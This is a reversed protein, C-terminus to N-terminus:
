DNELFFTYKKKWKGGKKKLKLRQSMRNEKWIKKLKRCKTKTKKGWKKEEFVAKLVAGASLSAPGRENFNAREKKGAGTGNGGGGLM